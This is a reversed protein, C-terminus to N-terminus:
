CLFIYLLLIRLLRVRTRVDAQLGGGGGGAGGGGEAAREELKKIFEDREKVDRELEAVRREAGAADGGDVSASLPASRACYHFCSAAERSVPRVYGVYTCEGCGRAESSKSEERRKLGNTPKPQKPM